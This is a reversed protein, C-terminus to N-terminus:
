YLFDKSWINLCELNKIFPIINEKAEKFDVENFNKILFEKIM